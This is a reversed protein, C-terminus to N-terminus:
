VLIIMFVNCMDETNSRNMKIVLQLRNLDFSCFFASVLIFKENKQYLNKHFADKTYVSFVIANYQKSMIASSQLRKN